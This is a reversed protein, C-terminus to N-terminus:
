YDKQNSIAALRVDVVASKGKKVENMAEQLVEPLEMPDTVMRAYAGGAAEAIKALDASQDFNVWYSDTQKALGDPYRKLVNMKTANWGENNYIVTLFPAQYRRSMWHVASPVSFLYSGDGTLTVVTKSPDALMIGVAAGGNWGLSTGGSGFMTGEKSRPLHKAVTMTNTITEDLIITEEDVVNRLCATLWEPTITNGKVQEDQMWAGRQEEHKEALRQYRERVQDEDINRQALEENLQILSAYADARYNKMAPIHWLPIEEKIPDLDIFFVKCDDKPQVQTSVWPVDTDIAIIVDAEPILPNPDYGLHLPHERPFNVYTPIQEVVPIAMKESFETLELVAKTKRGLYTTILLPNEAELLASVIEEIGWKSISAQEISAWKGWTNPLKEVNEELVERAGTLYVPGAPDSQAMQMARYILQKVNKGTRIDYEWKVYSRLIGRQDYVNQLFNVYSNRTGSLEGDMTFPTEGAFIFVPVRARFANHIAGGLNQTGVDTHIIVGQAQGSLMAYGQAAALAVSEHPCIIAKPLEKGEVKAKALAEIMSPHDSGLNCFLYSIGVEQLAEMLAEAGMYRDSLNDTATFRDLKQVDNM